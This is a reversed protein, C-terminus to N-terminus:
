STKARAKIKKVRSEFRSIRRQKEEDTLGDLSKEILVAIRRLANKRTTTTVVQQKAGRPQM